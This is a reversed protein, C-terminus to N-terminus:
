LYLYGSSSPDSFVTFWRPRSGRSLRITNRAANKRPRPGMGKMSLTSSMGDSALTLSTLLLLLLSLTLSNIM